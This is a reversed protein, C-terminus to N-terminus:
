TSQRNTGPRDGRLDSNLRPENPALSNSFVNGQHMNKESFNMRRTVM